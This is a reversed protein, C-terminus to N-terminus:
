NMNQYQWIIEEDKRHFYKCKKNKQLERNCILCKVNDNEVFIVACLGFIANPKLANVCFGSVCLKEKSMQEYTLLNLFTRKESFNSLLSSYFFKFGLKPFIWATM